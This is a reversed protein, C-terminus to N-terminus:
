AAHFLLYFFWTFPNIVVFCFIVSGLWAAFAVCSMVLGAIALGNLRYKEHRFVAIAGLIIGVVSSFSFSFHYAIISIFGILLTVIGIVFSAIGLGNVPKTHIPAPQAPATTQVPTQAPEATQAPAGVPTKLANGCHSCFNAHEDIQGGCYKCFM